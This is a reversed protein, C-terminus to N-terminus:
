VGGESGAREREYTVEKSFDERMMRDLTASRQVGRQGIVQKIKNVPGKNSIINNM